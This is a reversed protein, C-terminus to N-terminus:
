NERKKLIITNICELYDYFKEYHENKCIVNQLKKDDLPYFKDVVDFYNIFEEFESNLVLPEAQYGCKSITPLPMLAETYNKLKNIKIDFCGCKGNKKIIQDGNYYTIVILGDKTLCKECLEALAKFNKSRNEGCLYHIAYNIVILDTNCHKFEERKLLENMIENNDTGLMGCVANFLISGKTNIDYSLIHEVMKKKVTQIKSAYKVLAEADADVAFLNSVGLSYLHALDGGRGGALDLCQLHERKLIRNNYRLSDFIYTRIHQTVVHFSNILEESFESTSQENVHAFYDNGPAVPPSFLIGVNSNGVKYGNPRIKDTRCRIPKWRIFEKGKMIPSMEYIKGDEVEMDEKQPNYCHMNEFLPSAFLVNYTQHIDLNHSEYGFFEQSFKDVRPKIKLNTAIDFASGTLYLQYSNLGPLKKILFDTTILERPKLKYSYYGRNWNEVDYPEKLQLVVGDTGDRKTTAYKILKDWDEIEFYKKVEINKIPNKNLFEKMLNMREEFPKNRIDKNIYYADFILYKNKFNESDAIITDSFDVNGVFELSGVVTYVFMKKDIFAILNRIGDTKDLWVFENQPIKKIVENTLIGVQPTRTIDIKTKLEEFTRTDFGTIFELVQNFDEIATQSYSDLAEFEVDFKIDLGKVIKPKIIDIEDISFSNLREKTTEIDLDENGLYRISVDIKFPFGKKTFTLRGRRQYNDVTSKQLIETISPLTTEISYKTVIKNLGVKTKFQGIYIQQICEKKEFIESGDSFSKFHRYFVNKIPVVPRYTTIFEDAFSDLTCDNYLIKIFESFEEIQTFKVAYELEYNINENSSKRALNTLLNNLSANPNM